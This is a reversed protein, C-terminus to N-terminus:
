SPMKVVLDDGRAGDDVMNQGVSYLLYGSGQRSYILPKESFFDVPVDRLYGASLEALAQPYTGHDQRYAWLELAVRTLRMETRARCERRTPEVMGAPVFWKVPWEGWVIGSVANWFGDRHFDRDRLEMAAIRKPYTPIRAAVAVADDMHNVGRMMREYSLPIFLFAKAEFVADQPQMVAVLLDGTRAPGIKALYQLADLEIYREGEGMPDLVPPLDGLAGLDDALSRAQDRSLKGSTAGMRGAVCACIEMKGAAARDVMFMSQGLLRAMRHAALLDDHFGAVDGADLRVLSRAVLAQASWRMPNLYALIAECIIDVRYGCNLPMFFRSRKSAEVLADLPKRNAEIWQRTVASIPTAVAGSDLMAPEGPASTNQDPTLSHTKCFDYYNVFYNGSDPLPAMGLRNTVGDHPQNPDIAQRGLAQLIPIAANNEPTVGAGADEELAALYDISGDAQMPGVIRTTDFGSTYGRLWQVLVLDAATLFLGFSVLYIAIRWIRRRPLRLKM